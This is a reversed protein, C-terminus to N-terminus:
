YEAKKWPDISYLSIETALSEAQFDAGLQIHMFLKMPLILFFIDIPSVCTEVNLVKKIYFRRKFKENSAFFISKNSFWDNGPAFVQM